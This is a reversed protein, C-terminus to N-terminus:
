VSLGVSPKLTIIGHIYIVERLTGSFIRRVEYRWQSEETPTLTTLDEKTLIFTTEGSTPDEHFGAANTMTEIMATGDFDDKATFSVADLTLDVGVGANNTLQFTITNDTGQQLEINIIEPTLDLDQPTQDAM